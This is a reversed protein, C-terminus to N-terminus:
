KKAKDVVNTCGTHTSFNENFYESSDEQHTKIKGEFLLHSSKLCCYATKGSAKEEKTIDNQINSENIVRNVELSLNTELYADGFLQNAKNSDAM